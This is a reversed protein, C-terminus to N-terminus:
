DFFRLLNVGSVLACALSVLLGVTEWSISGHRFRNPIELYAEAPNRPNYFVQSFSEIERRMGDIESARVTWGVPMFKEGQFEKGDLQYIFRVSPLFGDPHVISQFFRQCPVFLISDNVVQARVQPWHLIRAIRRRLAYFWCVACISSAFILVPILFEVETNALKKPYSKLGSATVINPM